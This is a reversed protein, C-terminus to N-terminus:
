QGGLGLYEAASSLFDGVRDVFGEPESATGLIVAKDQANGSVYFIQDSRPKQMGLTNIAYDEIETLNFASEYAILLKARDEQLESISDELTVCSESVQTLQVRTLLSIVLLVAVILCGIVAVPSVAQASVAQASVAQKEGVVEESVEPAAPIDLPRGYSYDPYLEPNSLDYAMSGQVGHKGYRAAAAKSSM